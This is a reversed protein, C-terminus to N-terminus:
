VRRAVRKGRRQQQLTFSQMTRTFSVSTLSTVWLPATSASFSAPPRTRSHTRRLFLRVSLIRSMLPGHRGRRHTSARRSVARRWTFAEQKSSTVWSSATAARFDVGSTTYMLPLWDTLGAGKVVGLYEGRGLAM